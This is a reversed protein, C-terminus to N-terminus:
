KLDTKFIIDSIFECEPRWFFKNLKYISVALIFLALYIVEMQLATHSEFLAQIAANIDM